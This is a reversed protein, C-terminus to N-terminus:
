ANFDIANIANWRESTLDQRTKTDIMRGAFILTGTENVYLVDGGADLEYLGATPGKHIAEVQLEPIREKLTARIKTAIDAPVDDSNAAMAGTCVVVALLLTLYPKFHM